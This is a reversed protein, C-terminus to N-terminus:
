NEFTFRACLGEPRWTIALVGGQMRVVRELFTMGFGNKAPAVVTPGGTERWEVVGLRVKDQHPSVTINVRGDPASLAGYKIANTLLENVCLSLTQAAASSMRIPSADVVIRQGTKDQHANTLGALLDAVSVSQWGQSAFLDHAAGIAQIRAQLDTDRAAFEPQIRGTLRIIGSVVALVNKVRHSMEGLILAREQEVRLFEIEDMTVAALRTLIANERKGWDPRPRFDHVCLTGLTRGDPTVIPAGAYFRVNPANAVLPNKAFRFDDLADVVVMPDIGGAVIAHACFGLRRDIETVEAGIISKFWQRARDVLSVIVIPVGLVEQALATIRDFRPDAGSDLIGYDQLAALRAEEDAPVPATVSGDANLALTLFPELLEPFM